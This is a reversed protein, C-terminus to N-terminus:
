IENGNKINKYRDSAGNLYGHDNLKVVPWWELLKYDEFDVPMNNHPDFLAKGDWYLCHTVDSGLNQSKVVVIAPNNIPIHVEIDSYKENFSVSFGSIDAGIVGQTYCRSALYRNIDDNTFGKVGDPHNTYDVKESGDHGCFDIVDKLKEGTIMAAVCAYCSWSNPQRVINEKNM